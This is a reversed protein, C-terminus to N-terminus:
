DDAHDSDNIGAENERYFCADIKTVASVENFSRDIIEALQESLQPGRALNGAVASIIGQHASGANHIIATYLIGLIAAITSWVEERHAWETSLSREANDAKTKAIRCDHEAKETDAIERRTQLSSDQATLSHDITRAFRQLDAVLMSGDKQLAPFGDAVKAYFTSKAIKYGNSLLWDFAAQRTQFNVNKAAVKKFAV